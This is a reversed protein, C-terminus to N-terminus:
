MLSYTYTNRSALEFVRVTFYYMQLLQLFLLTCPYFYSNKPDLSYSYVGFSLLIASFGESVFYPYVTLLEQTLEELDQEGEENKPPIKVSLCDFRLIQSLMAYPTVHAFAWAGVFLLIFLYIIMILKCFSLFFSLIMVFLFRAFHQLILCFQTLFLCTIRLHSM